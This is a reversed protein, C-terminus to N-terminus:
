NYNDHKNILREDNFITDNALLTRYQIFGKFNRCWGKEPYSTTENEEELISTTKVWHTYEVDDMCKAVHEAPSAHIPNRAFLRNFLEIDKKYDQTGDFNDYSVRACRAIAVKVIAEVMYTQYFSNSDSDYEVESEYTDSWGPALGLDMIANALKLNDINEGFPIHWEGPQLIKPTSANFAKLAEDALKAIHIEADPHARLAFFNDWETGTILVRHWLFPELLRNCLQKTLGADHLVTAQEVAKNRAGLWHHTLYDLTKYEGPNDSEEFDNETFYEVGQMGSHDKQWAIPIFPDDQVSKVMRKFPIARSSASNKSLMRHTNLEALIYRPFQFIASTIRNGRGDISDAVIEVSIKRKCKCDNNCKCDSM